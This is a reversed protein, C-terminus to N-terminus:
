RGDHRWERVKSCSGIFKDDDAYGTRRITLPKGGVNFSLAPTSHVSPYYLLSFSDSRILVSYKIIPTGENTQRSEHTHQGKSGHRIRRM